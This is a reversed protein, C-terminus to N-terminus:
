RLFSGMRVVGRGEWACLRTSKFNRADFLGRGFVTKLRINYMCSGFRFPPLNGTLKSETARIVDYLSARSENARSVLIYFLISLFFLLACEKNM